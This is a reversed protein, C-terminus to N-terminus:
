GEEREDAGGGAVVKGEIAGGSKTNGKGAGRGVFDADAGGNAVGAIEEMSGFAVDGVQEAGEGGSVVGRCEGCDGAERGKGGKPVGCGRGVAEEEV